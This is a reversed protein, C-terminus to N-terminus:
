GQQSNDELNEKKIQLYFEQRTNLTIIKVIKLMSKILRNKISKLLELLLKKNM